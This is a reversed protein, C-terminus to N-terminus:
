EYDNEQNLIELNREVEVPALQIKKLVDMQGRMFTFKNFDTGKDWIEKNLMQEMYNLYKHYVLWNPDAFLYRLQKLEEPSWVKRLETKYQVKLIERDEPTLARTSSSRDM